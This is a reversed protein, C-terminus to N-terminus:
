EYIKRNAIKKNLLENNADAGKAKEWQLVAGNVDGLKFLIDGYHEFHTANGKGTNIAREIIKKAEKYKQRMYLVWAHTDLYTPNEPNNKILQSSMKEAKELNDKRLALYYSYNNLIVDNEPNISLAEDYAKDSKAYQKMAHYADGLMGNIEGRLGPQDDRILRRAQELSVTAEEYHRKRIHAYGNFYYLIGQNPFLELAEDAHKIVNDFQNLKTELFLLNKWVEFNVDDLKIAQQYEAIAENPHGATMHLDGGLIHVNAVEPYASTLKNLLLFAFSEKDADEPTKTQTLSLETNYTGLVIVKSGLAVSPDDFIRLLIERSKSEQQIDRYFGALLMGVNGASENEKLFDELILIAQDQFDNKALVEAFAMVYQEEGPYASLLKKGEAVAEKSKGVQLYLRIKQISSTENVGFVSEARDYTKLAENPKNAYQYVSALEYLYEETGKVERLMAEYTQAAKEFRASANYINAALLYFYKNNRELNLATEISLSAKLIDDQKESQALVEAIKYHVTANEPNVELSKQYYLLAKAYDELIFYKEGETFYFEAERQRTNSAYTESNKKKKQAIVPEVSCFGAVLLLLGVASHFRM